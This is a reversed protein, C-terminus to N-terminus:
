GTDISDLTLTMRNQLRTNTSQTGDEVFLRIVVHAIGTNWLTCIPLFQVLLYGSMKLAPVSGIVCHIFVLPRIM